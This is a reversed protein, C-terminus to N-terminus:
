SSFGTSIGQQDSWEFVMGEYDAIGLTTLESNLIDMGTGTGPFSLFGTFSSSRNTGAIAGQGASFTLLLVCCAECSWSHPSHNADALAVM